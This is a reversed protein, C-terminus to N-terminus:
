RTSCIQNTRPDQLVERSVQVGSLWGESGDLPSRVLFDGAQQDLIRARSGPVMKGVPRGKGEVSTKSWLNIRYNGVVWEESRGLDRAFDSAPALQVFPVCGAAGRSKSVGTAKGTSPSDVTRQKKQNEVNRELCPLPNEHTRIEWSRDPCVEVCEAQWPHQFVEPKRGPCTITVEAQAAPAILLPLM